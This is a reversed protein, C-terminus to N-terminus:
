RRVLRHLLRAAHLRGDRHHDPHRAGGRRDTAAYAGDFEVESSANSKNGLKDKLRIIQIANREGDPTWRPMLFCSLGKAAQALVLFADCM